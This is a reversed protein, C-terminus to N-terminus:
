SRHVGLHTLPLLQTFTPSGVDQTHCYWCLRLATGLVGQDREVATNLLRLQHSTNTVDLGFSAAAYETQWSLIPHVHPGDHVGVARHTHPVPCHCGATGQWLTRSEHISRSIRINSTIPKQFVELASSANHSSTYPYVWLVTLVGLLGHVNITLPGSFCVITM